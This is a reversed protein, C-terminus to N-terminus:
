GGPTRPGAPPTAGLDYSLGGHFRALVEQHVRDLCAPPLEPLAIGLLGAIRHLAATLWCTEAPFREQRGHQHWWAGACAAAAVLLAYRDALSRAYPGSLATHGAADLPACAEGLEAVAVVMRGLLERLVASCGPHSGTDGANTIRAAQSALSSLPDETASRSSCRMPRTLDLAPLPGDPRFLAEPIEQGQGGVTLVGGYGRTPLRAVLVAWPSVEDGTPWLPSALESLRRAFRRYPDPSDLRAGELVTTLDHGTETLLREALYGAAASCASAWDPLLHAARAACLTICDVVLLDLFAGALIDRGPPAATRSPAGAQAAEVVGHLLPDLRALVTSAHLGHTLRAARLALELGGGPADLVTDWGVTRSHGGAPVEDPTLLLATHHRGGGRGADHRATVVVAHCGPPAAASPKASLRLGSQQTLATFGGQPASAGGGAAGLREGRLLLAAARRQQSRTGGAWIRAASPFSGLYPEAAASLDRRLVTRVLQHLEEARRLRGGATEPVFEAPFGYRWLALAVTDPAAGARSLSRELLAIRNM